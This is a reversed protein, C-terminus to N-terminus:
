CRGNLVFIFLPRCYKISAIQLLNDLFMYGCHSKSLPCVVLQANINGNTWAFSNKVTSQCYTAEKLIRM